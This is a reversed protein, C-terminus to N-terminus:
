HRSYASRRRLSVLAIVGLLAPAGDCGCQAAPLPEFGPLNNVVNEPPGEERLVEILLSAKVRSRDVGIAGFRGDPYPLQWGQETTLVADVEQGTHQDCGVHMTATHVNSVEPLDPNFSFAPDKNM